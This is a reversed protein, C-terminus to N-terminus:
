NMAPMGQVTKKKIEEFLRKTLRLGENELEVRSLQGKLLDIEEELKKRSQVDASQKKDCNIGEDYSYATKRSLGIDECIARINLDSGHGIKGPIKKCRLISGIEDRTLSVNKDEKDEKVSSEGKDIASVIKSGNDM